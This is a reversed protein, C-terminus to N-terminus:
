DTEKLDDRLTPAPDPSGILDLAATLHLQELLLAPASHALLDVQLRRAMRRASAQAAVLVQAISADFGELATMDVIVDGAELAALVRASVAGADALRLNGRLAVVGAGTQMQGDM